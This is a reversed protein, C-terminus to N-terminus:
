RNRKKHSLYKRGERISLASLQPKNEQIFDTVWAPNTKSYDRLAWGIAKNIFFETQNLNNSLIQHLLTTDMREKLLLQHLIAVRRLWFNEATSWELMTIKLEPFTLVMARVVANLADVSDWWAKKTILKQIKPLDNKDLLQSYYLLYDIALYQFEREEKQWCTEIFAWDIQTVQNQKFYSKSIERRKPTPIGLFLFQHRMYAAMQDSKESNTQNFFAEFIAM